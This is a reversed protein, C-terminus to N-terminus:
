DPRVKLGSYWLRESEEIVQSLGPPTTREATGPAGPGLSGGDPRGLDGRSPRGVRYAGQLDQGPRPPLGQPIM